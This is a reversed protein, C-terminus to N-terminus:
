IFISPFDNDYIRVRRNFIHGKTNKGIKLRKPNRAFVFFLACNSPVTEQKNMNFLKVDKLDEEM